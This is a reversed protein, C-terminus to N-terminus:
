GHESRRTSDLQRWIQEPVCGVLRAVDQCVAPLEGIAGALSDGRTVGLRGLVSAPRIRVPM